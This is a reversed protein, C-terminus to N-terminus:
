QSMKNNHIITLLIQRLSKSMENYFVGIEYVKKLDFFSLEKWFEFYVFLKCETNEFLCFLHIKLNKALGIEEM